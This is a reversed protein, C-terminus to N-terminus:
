GCILQRFGKFKDREDTTCKVCTIRGPYVASSKFQVLYTDIFIM